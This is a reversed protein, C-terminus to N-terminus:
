SPPPARPRADLCGQGQRAATEAVGRPDGAAVGRKPRLNQRDVAGRDPAGQARKRRSNARKSRSSLAPRSPASNARREQGLGPGDPFLDRGPALAEEALDFFEHHRDLVTGAGDLLDQVHQRVSSILTLSM